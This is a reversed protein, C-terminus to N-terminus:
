QGHLSSKAMPNPLDKYLEHCFSPIYPLLSWKPLATDGVQSRAQRQGQEYRLYADFPGAAYLKTRLGDRGREDQLDM